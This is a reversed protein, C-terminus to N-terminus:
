IEILQHLAQLHQGANIDTVAAIVLSYAIRKLALISRLTRVLVVSHNSLIQVLTAYM